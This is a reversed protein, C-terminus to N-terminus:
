FLGFRWKEEAGEGESNVARCLSKVFGFSNSLLYALTRYAVSTRAGAAPSRLCCSKRNFQICILWKPWEQEIYRSRPDEVADRRLEVLSYNRKASSESSFREYILM